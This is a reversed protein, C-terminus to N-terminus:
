LSKETIDSDPFYTSSTEILELDNGTCTYLPYKGAYYADEDPWNPASREVDDEVIYRNEFIEVVIGTVRRSLIKVHSFLPIVPVTLSVIEFLEPPYAYAEHTEDM